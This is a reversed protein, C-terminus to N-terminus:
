RADRYRFSFCNCRVEHLILLAVEPQFIPDITVFTKLVSRQSRNLVTTFYIQRELWGLPNAQKTVFSSNFDVVISWSSRVRELVISGAIVFLMRYGNQSFSRLVASPNIWSGIVFLDAFITGSEKEYGHLLWHECVFGSQWTQVTQNGNRLRYYTLEVHKCPLSLANHWAQSNPDSNPSQFCLQAPNDRGSPHRPFDGRAM